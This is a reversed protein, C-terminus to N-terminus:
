KRAYYEFYNSAQNHHNHQLLDRGGVQNQYSVVEDEAAVAAATTMRPGADGAPGAFAVEHLNPGHIVPPSSPDVAAPAPAPAAAAAVAASTVAINSSNTGGIEAYEVLPQQQQQQQQQNSSPQPEVDVLVSVNNPM